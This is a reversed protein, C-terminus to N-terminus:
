KSELTQIKNIVEINRHDDLNVPCGDCDLLKREMAPTHVCIGWTEGEMEYWSIVDQDASNVDIAILNPM